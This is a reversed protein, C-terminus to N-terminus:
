RVDLWRPHLERLLLGTVYVDELWFPPKSRQRDVELMRDALRRHLVYAYGQCYPPYVAPYYDRPDVVYHPLCGGKTVQRCVSRSMSRACVADTTNQAPRLVDMLAWFNIYADVDCKLVWTANSCFARFWHVAALSKITLNKRTELFDFQIIDRHKDSEQQLHRQTVASPVAGVIFVTKLKLQRAISERGWMERIMERHYVQSPNSTVANM